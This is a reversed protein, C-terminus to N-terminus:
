VSPCLMRRLPPLCAGILREEEAASSHSHVWPADGPHYRPYDALAANRPRYAGMGQPVGERSMQQIRAGIETGDLLHEAM